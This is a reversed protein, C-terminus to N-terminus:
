ARWLPPANCRSRHRRHARFMMCVNVHAFVIRKATEIEPEEHKAAIFQWSLSPVVLIFYEVLSPNITNKCAIREAINHLISGGVVESALYLEVV